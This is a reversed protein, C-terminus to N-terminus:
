FIEKIRDEFSYEPLRVKKAASGKKAVKMDKYFRQLLRTVATRSIGMIEAAEVQAKGMVAVLIYARLQKKTAGRKKCIAYFRKLLRWVSQRSIGMIKAAEVPTEGVIEILFYARLQKKTPLNSM